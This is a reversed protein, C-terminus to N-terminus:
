TIKAERKAVVEVDKDGRGSLNILVIDNKKFNNKNKIVWALAHACELAPIIGEKKSLVHFAKVAEEDTAYYYRARKFDRLMSHEPGVAPYDLGASISHTPLIQGYKDQLVHTFTGHLVGKGGSAFRAAHKGIEMGEGGAEVGILEVNENLFDYFIGIANSGGGVCAVIATPLRGEKKIIQKKAEKGIVRQFDRIM